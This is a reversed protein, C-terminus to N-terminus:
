GRKSALAAWLGGSSLIALLEPPLAQFRFDRGSSRAEGAALDVSVSDGDQLDDALAPAVVVPLGNNVANRFFIRGFSKAIVLRVDNGILATVAHERSSGSGLNWGGVLVGGAVLRQRLDPGLAEFLHIAQERPDRVALYRGPYMVDTNVDDGVCVATGSIQV